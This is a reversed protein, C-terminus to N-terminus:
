KKGQYPPISHPLFLMKLNKLIFAMTRSKAFETNRNREFLARVDDLRDVDQWKPLIHVKYNNKKFIEITKEFVKETGWQIGEFIEPLFTNNKFGILYYGGDFSPGIVANYNDFNFAKEIIKNTLDPIDSGILVLKLFGELFSETFANEMREGLDKGKQPMYSYDNGLWSSMKEQSDPPYFCIKFVYRGRKLTELLDLVFNKYLSLVADENLDESLRTKVRGREPLKLFLLICKKENQRFVLKM